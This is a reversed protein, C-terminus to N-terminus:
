MSEEKTVSLGGCQGEREPKHLRGRRLFPSVTENKRIRWKNTWAEKEPLQVLCHPHINFNSLMGRDKKMGARCLNPWSSNRGM